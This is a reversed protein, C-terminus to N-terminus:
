HPRQFWAIDSLFFPTQKSPYLITRWLLLFLGLRLPQLLIIPFLWFMGVRSPCALGPLVVDPPQQRRLGSGSGVYWSIFGFSLEIRVSGLAVSWCTGLCVVVLGYCWCCCTGLRFTLLALVGVAAAVFSLGILQQRRKERSAEVSQIGNM